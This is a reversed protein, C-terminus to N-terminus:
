TGEELLSELTALGRAAHTKVSSTSISLSDAIERESLDMWYRLTLVERQRPPLTALAALVRRTEDNGLAAEEPTQGAVPLLRPAFRRVVGLHRLRSRSLNCVTSRVYAVAAEPDRLGHRRAHLRALAEQAVDQPDDAGLLGALRTLAQFHQRYFVDFSVALVQATTLETM